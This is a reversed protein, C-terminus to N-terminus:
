RECSACELLTKILDGCWGGGGGRDWLAPPWLSWMRWGGQAGTVCPNSPKFALSSIGRWSKGALCSLGLVSAEYVEGVVPESEASIPSVSDCLPKMTKFGM